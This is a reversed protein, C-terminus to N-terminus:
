KIYCILCVIIFSISCNLQCERRGYIFLNVFINFPFFISIGPLFNQPPWAALAQQCIAGIQTSADGLMQPPPTFCVAQDLISSSFPPRNSPGAQGRISNSFPQSIGMCGDLVEIGPVFNPFKLLKFDPVAPINYNETPLPTSPPNGSVHNHMGPQMQDQVSQMYYQFMDLQKPKNVDMLSSSLPESNAVLNGPHINGPVEASTTPYTTYYSNTNVSNGCGINLDHEGNKQQTVTAKQKKM